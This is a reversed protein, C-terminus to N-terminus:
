QKRPMGSGIRAKGRNVFQGFVYFNTYVTTLSDQLVKGKFM